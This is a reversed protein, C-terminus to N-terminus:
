FDGHFGATMEMCSQQLVLVDTDSDGQSVNLAGSSSKAWSKKLINVM